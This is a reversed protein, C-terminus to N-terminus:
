ELEEFSAMEFIKDDSTSWPGLSEVSPEPGIGIAIMVEFKSHVEALINAKEVDSKDGNERHAEDTITVLIKGADARLNPHVVESTYKLLEFSDTTVHKIVNESQLSLKLTEINRELIAQM